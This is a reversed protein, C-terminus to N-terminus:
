HAATLRQVAAVAMGLDGSVLRYCRAGRLTRELLPITRSGYVRTNFSNEVLLLLATARSMRTLATEGGPRYTPAIVFGVECPGHTSGRRIDEATAHVEFGGAPRWEQAPLADALTRIADGKLTLAKPFPYLRGSVPDIAGAEDSLYGFGAQVLAGVLTSKGSGSSGPLLVGAGSPTAVAGAHVLLFDGTRRMAESNVHWFFHHFLPGAQDVEILPDGGYLLRFPHPVSTGLRALSYAPPMGPTPPNRQESPDPAVAFAGLIHDVYRGIMARNWRVSFYYSLVRYTAEGVWRVRKLEDV